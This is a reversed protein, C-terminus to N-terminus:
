HRTRRKVLDDFVDKTGCDMVLVEGQKLGRITARREHYAQEIRRYAASTHLGRGELWSQFAYGDDAALVPGLILVTAM